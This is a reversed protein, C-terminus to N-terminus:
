GIVRSVGKKAIQISWAYINYRNDSIDSGYKVIKTAAM